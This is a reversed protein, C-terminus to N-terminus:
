KSEEQKAMLGLASLHEHTHSRVMVAKTVGNTNSHNHQRELHYRLFSTVARAMDRTHDVHNMDPTHYHSM